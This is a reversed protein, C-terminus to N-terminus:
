DELVRGESLVQGFEELTQVNGSGATLKQYDAFFERRTFVNLLIQREAMKKVLDAATAGSKAPEHYQADTVLYLRATARQAFPLTLAAELADLASEPLDGGDFRRIGAVAQQFQRVDGTFEHRDLWEDESTDGFGILAFRHQLQKAQLAQSFAGCKEQLTAISRSMSGTTDMLVVIDAQKATPFTQARGKRWLLGRYVLSVHIDQGPEYIWSWQRVQKGPTKFYDIVEAEIQGSRRRFYVKGPTVVRFSIQLRAQNAPHRAIQVEELVAYSRVGAQYLWWLIVALLLLGLGLFVGLYRNRKGLSKHQAELSAIWAQIESSTSTGPPGPRRPRTADPSPSPTATSATVISL